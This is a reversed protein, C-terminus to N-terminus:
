LMVLILWPDQNDFPPGYITAISKVVQFNDPEVGIGPPIFRDWASIQRALPDSGDFYIDVIAELVTIGDPNRHPTLGGDAMGAHPEIWCFLEVLDAFQPQAYQDFGAFQYWQVTQTMLQRVEPPLSHVPGAM